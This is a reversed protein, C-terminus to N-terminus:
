LLCWKQHTWNWASKTLLDLEICTSYYDFCQLLWIYYDFYHNSYLNYATTLSHPKQLGARQIECQIPWWRIQWVTMNFVIYLRRASPRGMIVRYQQCCDKTSHNMGICVYLELNYGCFTTLNCNTALSNQAQMAIKLVQLECPFFDCKRVVPFICYLALKLM